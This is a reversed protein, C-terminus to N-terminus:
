NKLIKLIRRNSGDLISLLYLGSKLSSAPIEHRDGKQLSYLIYEGNSSIKNGQITHCLDFDSHDLSKKQAFTTIASFCLIAFTLSLKSFNKM